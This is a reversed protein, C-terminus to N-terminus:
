YITYRIGMLQTQTPLIKTLYFVPTRTPKIGIVTTDVVGCIYIYIYIYIYPISIEFM